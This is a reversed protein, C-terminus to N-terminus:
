AAREQAWHVEGDAFHGQRRRPLDAWGNRRIRGMESQLHGRSWGLTEQIRPMSWGAKWMREIERARAVVLEHEREYWCQQCLGSINKHLAGGVGGCERCRVRNKPDREWARKQERRAANSNSNRNLERAREPNLVKWVASPTVGLRRAIESYSM